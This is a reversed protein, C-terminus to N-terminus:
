LSIVLYICVEMLSVFVVTPVHGDRTPVYVVLLITEWACGPIGEEGPLDLISFGRGLLDLLLLFSGVM